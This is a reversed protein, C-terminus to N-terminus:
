NQNADLGRVIEGDVASNSYGTSSSIGLNIPESKVPTSSQAPIAAREAPTNKDVAIFENEPVMNAQIGTDYKVTLVYAIGIKARGEVTGLQRTQTHRVRGGVTPRIINPKFLNALKM